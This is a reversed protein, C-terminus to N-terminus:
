LNKTIKASIEKSRYIEIIILLYALILPGLILGMVGFMFIGGIMGILVLSSPLNVKKSVFFPRLVNDISSAVSGFIAVGIASFTNGAILLYAAVPMWVLVAGVIPLIGALTAFLTLLLANPVSFIIFSAGAILGQLVGIIVQGYLVSKTIAGSSDFFKKQIDKSFPLLSKIYSTFEENDRLVFFFTFLVVISQLLITPFHLILDSLENTFSNTSRTVFSQLISGIESSLEESAFLSPFISKLPTIFDTEQSAIYFKISQDIVMPTLFWFPILVILVLFTCILLATLNKSRVFKKLRNHVPFFVFALILGIIIAMLIPKLLLFSLVVLVGFIGGVVIRKFLAEDM